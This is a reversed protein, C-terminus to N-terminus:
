LSSFSYSVTFMKIEYPCRSAEIEREVHIIAAERQMLILPNFRKEAKTTTRWVADSIDQKRPM